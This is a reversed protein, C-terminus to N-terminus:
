RPTNWSYHEEWAAKSIAKSYEDLIMPFKFDLKALTEPSYFESFFSERRAISGAGDNSERDFRDNLAQTIREIESVREQMLEAVKQDIRQNLSQTSPENNSPQPPPDAPIEFRLPAALVMKLLIKLRPDTSISVHDFEHQLLKSKWPYEPQFNTRVFVRHTWQVDPIIVNAAVAITPPDALKQLIPTNNAFRYRYQYAFRFKTLGQKQRETLEQDNFEFTVQGIDILRKIGPPSQEVWQAFRDRPPPQDKAPEQAWISCGLCLSLFGLAPRFRCPSQPATLSGPPM